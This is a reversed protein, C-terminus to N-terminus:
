RPSSNCDRQVSWKRGRTTAWFTVFSDLSAQVLHSSRTYHIAICLSVISREYQWMFLREELLHAIAAPKYPSVHRAQKVGRVPQLVSTGCLMWSEMRSCKCCTSLKVSNPSGRSTWIFQTKDPKRRPWASGRAHLHAKMSLVSRNTYSSQPDKM